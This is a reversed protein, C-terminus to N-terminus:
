RMKGKMSTMGAGGKVGAEHGDKNHVQPNFPGRRRKGEETSKYAGGSEDLCAKLSGHTGGGRTRVRDNPM